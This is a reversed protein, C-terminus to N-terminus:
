ANIKELFSSDQPTVDPTFFALLDGKENILYKCFNWVPEQINWGNYAKNSLWKYLDHQHDKIVSIKAFIPFSVDYNLSCFAKIETDTGPEQNGFDNSPFGLVIIKEKNKQYFEEWLKYQPTFGCKSAVNIIVIKKGKFSELNHYEGAITKVNIEYFDKMSYSKIFLTM